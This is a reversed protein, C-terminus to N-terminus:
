LTIDYDAVASKTTLGGIEVEKAQASTRLADRESQTDSPISTGKDLQRIFVWDTEALKNNLNSKLNNIKNEIMESLTLSFQKEVITYTFRTNASDWEVDGLEHTNPNYEPTYLDFLGEAKQQAESLNNFGSIYHKQSGVFESPASTYITITGNKNTAKMM